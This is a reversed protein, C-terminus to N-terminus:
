RKGIIIVAKPNDYGVSVIMDDKIKVRLFEDASVAGEERYSKWTSGNYHLLEGYSGCVAIDNEAQGDISYLYYRTIGQQFSVWPESSKIDQKKYMEGGVAYYVSGPKGWLSRISYQIGTVPLETVKTGEIKLIKKELNVSQKAAVAYIKYEEGEKFGQIDYIDLQDTGSPNTLKEWNNGNYHAMSGSRGGFYINSTNTGWVSTLSLNPDVTTRLDYVQWNNGDGYIPLSGVVWIDTQSFALIGELPATILAGRFYTQIKKVEFRTGDWHVANYAEPDAEGTSDNLYIEGVFWINNENIIAIDFLTSSSHAGFEWREFTFNHSTTDQQIIDTTETPSKCSLIILLIVPYIWILTKMNILRM